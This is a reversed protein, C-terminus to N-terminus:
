NILFHRINLDFFSNVDLRAISKLLAVAYATSGAGTPGRETLIGAAVPGTAVNELPIPKSLPLIGIVATLIPYKRIGFPAVLFGARAFLV